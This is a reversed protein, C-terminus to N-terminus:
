GFLVGRRIMRGRWERGALMMMIPLGAVVVDNVIIGCSGWPYLVFM